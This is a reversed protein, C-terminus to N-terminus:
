AITAWLKNQKLFYSDIKKYFAGNTKWDLSTICGIKEISYWAASLKWMFVEPNVRTKYCIEEFFISPNDLLMFFAEDFGDDQPMKVWKWHINKIMRKEKDIEVM